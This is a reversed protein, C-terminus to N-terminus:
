QNHKRLRGVCMAITVHTAITCVCAKRPGPGVAIEPLSAHTGCWPWPSRPTDRAGGTTQATHLVGVVKTKIDFSELTKESRAKRTSIQRKGPAPLVASKLQVKKRRSRHRCLDDKVTLINERNCLESASTTTRRRATDESHPSILM